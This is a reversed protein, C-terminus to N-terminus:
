ELATKSLVKDSERCEAAVDLVVIVAFGFAIVRGGSAIRNVSM